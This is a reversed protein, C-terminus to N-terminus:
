LLKVNNRVGINAYAITGRVLNINININSYNLLEHSHRLKIVINLQTTIAVVYHCYKM